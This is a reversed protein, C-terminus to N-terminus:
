ILKYIKVPKGTKIAYRWTFVTGRSTGDWFAILMDCNDAILKNRILPASKGYKEYDPRFVTLPIGRLRAERMALRDVGVAGGTIIETADKPIYESIDANKISRSGIVAVKMM